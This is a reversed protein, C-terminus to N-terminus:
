SMYRKKYDRPSEGFANKFTRSFQSSNLLGYRNAVAGMSLHNLAPDALDNRCQELRQERIWAAVTTGDNSFLTHLTRLSIFHHDAIGQPTLNPDHLNELIHSRIQALLRAKTPEPQQESKELGLENSMLTSLLDLSNRGLREAGADTLSEVNQVLRALYSVVINGLGNSASLNTATLEDVLHLPVGIEDQPFVIITNRFQDDTELGYARDSNYFALDGPGLLTEKGQQYIRGHGSVQLHLMYLGRPSTQAMAESRTVQHQKARVDFVDIQGLSRSQITGHFGNSRPTDVRLPAFRESVMQTYEDISRSQVRTMLLPSRSLYKM